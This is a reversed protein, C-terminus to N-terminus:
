KFNINRWNASKVWSETTRFCFLLDQMIRLWEAAIWTIKSGILGLWVQFREAFRLPLFGFHPCFKQNWEHMPMCLRLELACLKSNTSVKHVISFFRRVKTDLNEKLSWTERQGIWNGSRMTSGVRHTQLFLLSRQQIYCIEPSSHWRRLTAAEASGERRLYASIVPYFWNSM